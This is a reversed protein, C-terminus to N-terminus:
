PTCIVTHCEKNDAAANMSGHMEVDSKLFRKIAYKSTSLEDATTGILYGEAFLATFLVMSAIFSSLQVHDNEYRGFKM